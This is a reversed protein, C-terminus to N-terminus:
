NRSDIKLALKILEEQKNDEPNELVQDLLCQLIYGMKKGPKIGAAILDKGTVALNKLSVCQGAAMVELYLRETDDINKVKEERMYLSQAGIDARRVKLYSEFFEEGIRNVARRVSKQNIPVSDDHYEVLHTVKRITENDFKLRKLVVGAIDKSKQQHGVFHAHGDDDMYKVVPKGSDHLLMVLRLIKDAEIDVLAHLTHEGVSYWHHITEQETEMMVDFEPMFQKTIGLKYAERLMDPRPSILMKVLEVQIREASIKKLTPALELMGQKTEEEIEFGLQAAFRVGRLIRLADESFRDVANGVCRIVGAELDEVGGFIDVLGDTENYAMANITFDRRLLDEKLNRTFV